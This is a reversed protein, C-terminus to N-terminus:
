KILVELNKQDFIYGELKDGIQVPGVGAPTGTFVIDGKKFMFYQSMFAILEDIKYIMDATNGLQKKEGNKYLTFEIKQLDEFKSKNVFDGIAASMDFGKALEWPLGKKKLDNQLDRATFDIGLAIEDYYKHAFQPLIHKGTNNIKVILELEYHIDKSFDPYYFDYGPRLVANDPKIFIVPNEPVENQLEKIHESYNRGVCLIKM